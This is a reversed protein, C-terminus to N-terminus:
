DAKTGKGDEAGENFAAILFVALVFNAALVATIAAYSTNGDYLKNLTWFYALIPLGFLALTFGILKLAVSRSYLM